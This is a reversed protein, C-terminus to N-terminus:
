ESEGCTDCKTFLWYDGDSNEDGVRCDAGPEHEQGSEGVTFPKRTM